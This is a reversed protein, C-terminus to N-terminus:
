RRSVEIWERLKAAARGSTASERARAIGELLTTGSSSVYIAAGANLLAVDLCPGHEGALVAQLRSLAEERSAVQLDAMACPEFGLQRPEIEYSRVADARLETVLTAGSLSIEDMGDLGHVAMVHISGLRQLVRVIPELWHPSFVGIVQRKAGAPSSLPGLLNLLTRVGLERRPAAAHKMAPHFVQAFLFGIGVKDICAAVQNPSADLRIGLSELVDAAGVLGSMARNGHKAIRVGAGAAIIAAATSVNFTQKADGGTGCTDVVDDAKIPLPLAHERMARVAGEIEDITEGKAALGILLGGIQAPSMDGAMMAGFVARAEDAALSERALLKTFLARTDM